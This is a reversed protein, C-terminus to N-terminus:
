KGTDENSAEEPKKEDSFRIKDLVTKMQSLDKKINENIKGDGDAMKEIDIIEKTLEDLNLVNGDVHHFIDGVIAQPKSPLYGLSQMKETMEKLIRWAFYEAQAKESNSAEPSRALRMLYSHHVKAKRFMDGVIRKALDVDPSLANNDEIVKLDRRVTRDSIKLIQGIQAQTYGEWSLFEVCERREGESLTKPNLTRDKVGQIVSIITRGEQEPDDKHKGM